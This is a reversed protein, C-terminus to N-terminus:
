LVVAPTCLPNCVAHVGWLWVLWGLWALQALEALEELLNCNALLIAINCVAWHQPLGFPSQVKKFYALFIWTFALWLSSYM